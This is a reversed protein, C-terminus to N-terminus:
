LIGVIIQMIIITIIMMVIVMIITIMLVTRIIMILMVDVNDVYHDGESNDANLTFM